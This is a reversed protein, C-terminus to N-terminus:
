LNRIELQRNKDFKNGKNASISIIAFKLVEIVQIMKM